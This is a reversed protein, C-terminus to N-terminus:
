KPINYAICSLIHSNFVDKDRSPSFFLMLKKLSYCVHHSPEQILTATSRGTTTPRHEFLIFHLGNSQIGSIIIIKESSRDIKNITNCQIKKKLFLPFNRNM